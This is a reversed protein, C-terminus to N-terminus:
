TERARQATFGVSFLYPTLVGPQVKYGRRPACAELGRRPMFGNCIVPNDTRLKPRGQQGIFRGLCSQDLAMRLQEWSVRLKVSAEFELIFEKVLGAPGPIKGSSPAQSHGGNTEASEQNRLGGSSAINASSDIQTYKVLIRVGELEDERHNARDFQHRVWWILAM